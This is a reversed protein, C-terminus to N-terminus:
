IIRVEITKKHKKGDSTYYIIEAKGKMKKKPIFIELDIEGYRNARIRNKSMKAGAKIIRVEVFSNKKLGEIHVDLKHNRKFELYHKLQFPRKNVRIIAESRIIEEEDDDEGIIETQANAFFVPFFGLLVYIFIRISKRSM